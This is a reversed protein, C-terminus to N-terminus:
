PTPTPPPLHHLSHGQQPVPRTGPSSKRQADIAKVHELARTRYPADLISAYFAWEARAETYDGLAEYLLAQYYHQDEAPAFRVPALARQVNTGLEQQYMTELKDLMDFALSRQDERDYLVALAFMVLTVSEQPYGSAPPIANALLDIGDSAQGHMALATALQMAAIAYPQQQVSGQALRLWRIADDLKGLRLYITGLRATVESGAKEPGVLKVCSELAEIAQATKGLEDAARGLLRLVDVNEPSLRHAYRLMGYADSFYRMRQEAFADVDAAQENDVVNFAAQAKQVIMAVERGHPEIVGRWFDSAAADAAPPQAPPRADAPAALLALAAAFSLSEWRM